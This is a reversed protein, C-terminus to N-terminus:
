GNGFDELSTDLDDVQKSGVGSTALNAQKATGTDSFRDKDLFQNYAVWGSEM